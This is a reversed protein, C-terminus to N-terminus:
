QAEASWLLPEASTTQMAAVVSSFPCRGLAKSPEGTTGAIPAAPPLTVAMAPRDASLMSRTMELPAEPSTRGGLQVGLSSVLQTEGANTVMCFAAGCRECEFFVGLSGEAPQEVKRFSLYAECKLCLFRM